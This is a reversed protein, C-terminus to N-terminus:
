AWPRRSPRWIPGTASSVPSPWANTRWRGRRRREPRSGGTRSRTSGTTSWRRWAGARGSRGPWPPSSMTGRSWPWGGSWQPWPGPRTVLTAACSAWNYGAGCMTRSWRWERKRTPWPRRWGGATCCPAPTATTGCAAAPPRRAGRRRPWGSRRGATRSM